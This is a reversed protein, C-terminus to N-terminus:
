YIFGIQLVDTALVRRLEALFEVDPASCEKEIFAPLDKGCDFRLAARWVGRFGQPVPLEGDSEVVVTPPPSAQEALVTGEFPGFGSWPSDVTETAGLDVYFREDSPHVRFDTGMVFEISQFYRSGIQDPPYFSPGMIREVAASREVTPYCLALNGLGEPLRDLANGAKRRRGGTLDLVELPGAVLDRQELLSNIDRAVDLSGIWSLDEVVYYHAYEVGM